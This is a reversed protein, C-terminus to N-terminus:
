KRVQISTTGQNGAADIAVASITHYGATAKRANWRYSVSAGNGTSVMTGDVYLTLRTVGVNDTATAGISVMGNVTSGNAPNTITAVPPASDITTTPPPPAPATVNSVGVAVPASTGANGAADYAVASLSYSTNAFKTTDWSFSYPTTTDTAILTGGAYLEVRTVGVNDSASVSVPVLGALTGGTPSAIAVTPKTTDSVPAGFAAQVASAVNVRGWGYKTDYGGSGLDTANSFLASEVQSPVLNPNAAMVLAVAGSVIPTAFSTGTGWGYGSNWLTTQITVGPAALDVMSGWSSFSALADNQDTASVTIMTTTNSSNEDIANNNASVVTVGGRDRLYQAAAQMTSSKYLNSFSINAVDAGHDAAWTLASALISFSSNAAADTARIPMIKAGYAVGVVGIGNNGMAAITGAVATGHGYVDNANTNNDYANWGAVLNAYLDPHNLQVGTDIVAVVVNQGTSSNWATQAGIKAIHWESALIPDNTTASLSVVEDVEAFKVHPNHSLAHAIAQENGHSSVPLEIVHVNLGGLKRKSQAGVGSLITDFDADSLGANPAVLIRGRAWSGGPSRTIENASPAPVSAEDLTPVVNGSPSAVTTTPSVAAIAVPKAPKLLARAPADALAPHIGAIVIGTVIAVLLFWRINPILNPVRPAFASRGPKAFVVSPQMVISRQGFIRM